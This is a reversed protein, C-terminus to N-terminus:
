QRTLKFAAAQFDGTMDLDVGHSMWYAGTATPPSPTSGYNPINGPRPGTGVLKGYIMDIRYTANPDLGELFLTPYPNGFESSHLM